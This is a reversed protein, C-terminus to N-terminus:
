TPPAGSAAPTGPTTITQLVTASGNSAYKLVSVLHGLFHSGDSHLSPFCVIGQAPTVTIKSLEANVATPAASKGAEIAAKILYVYDYAEYSYPDPMAHWMKEYAAYFAKLGVGGGSAEVDCAPVVDTVKALEAGTIGGGAIAYPFSSDM